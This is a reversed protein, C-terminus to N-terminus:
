ATENLAEKVRALVHRLCQDTYSGRAKIFLPGNVGLAINAAEEKADQNQITMGAALFKKLSKRKRGRWSKKPRQGRQGPPPPTDLAVIVASM